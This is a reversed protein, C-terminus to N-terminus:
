YDDEFIFKFEREDVTDFDCYVYGSKCLGFKMLNYTKHGYSFDKSSMEYATVLNDIAIHFLWEIVAKEGWCGKITNKDEETFFHRKRRHDSGFEELAQSDDIWEHLEAFDDGTRKLSIACHIKVDPM